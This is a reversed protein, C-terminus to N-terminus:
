LIKLEALKMVDLSIAVGVGLSVLLIGALFLNKAANYNAVHLSKVALMDILAKMQLVIGIMLPALAFLDYNNWPMPNSAWNNLFNLSFGILVAIVTLTGNRFVSEILEPEDTNKNKTPM